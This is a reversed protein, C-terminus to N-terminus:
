DALHVFICQRMSGDTNRSIHGKGTRDEALVLSGPGFLRAEGSEVELEVTGTLTIVLQRRPATHWGLDYGGAVQRFEMGTVPWVDSISGISGVDSLVVVEDSFHSQGDAGTFLRTYNVGVANSESM